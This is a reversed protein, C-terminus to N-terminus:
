IHVQAYIHMHTLMCTRECAYTYENTNLEICVHVKVHIDNYIFRMSNTNDTSTTTALISYEVRTMQMINM